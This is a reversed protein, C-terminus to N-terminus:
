QVAETVEPAPLALQEIQQRINQLKEEAGEKDLYVNATLLTNSMVEKRWEQAIPFVSVDIDSVHPHYTVFVQLKQEAKMQIALTMLELVETIVSM